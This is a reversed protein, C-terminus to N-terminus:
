RDDEAPWEGAKALAARAADWHEDISIEDPVQRRPDVSEWDAVLQKLAALLDPATDLVRARAARAARLGLLVEAFKEGSAREEDKTM